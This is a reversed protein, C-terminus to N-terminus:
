LENWESKFEEVFRQMYVKRSYAIHQATRTNMEDAVKFLKEYFHNITTEKERYEAKTMHRRPRIKPDYMPAGHVGGYAFARAIGIAGISDLRDADQVIKGEKTLPYQEELNDAFSMHDIIDLVQEIEAQSYGFEASKELVEARKKAPDACLKDDFVDHLYAATLAIEGNAPENTLIKLVLNIVREIHDFGHGSHDNAMMEQSYQRVQTLKENM